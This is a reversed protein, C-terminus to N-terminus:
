DIANWQCRQVIRQGLDNSHAASLSSMVKTSSLANTPVRPRGLGPHPYGLTGQTHRFGGWEFESTACHRACRLLLARVSCLPAWCDVQRQRWAVVQDGGWRAPQSQWPGTNRRDRARRVGARGGRATSHCTRYTHWHHTKCRISPEEFMAICQQM